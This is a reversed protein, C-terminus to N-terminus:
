EQRAVIRIFRQTSGTVPVDDRWLETVTGDDNETSGVSVGGASWAGVEDATQVEVAIGGLENRRTFTIALFREEAGNADDSVTGVEPLVGTDPELPDGGLVFELLNPVGDADPDALPGSIAEDDVNEFHTMRWEQFPDTEAGAAEINDYHLEMAVSDGRWAPDEASLLRMENVGALTDEATGTGAQRVLDEPAIGISHRSWGSGPSLEVADATAFQGGPGNLAVRIWASENGAVHRVDFRITVVGESLFDGTWQSRNFMIMMSGATGQGSSSVALAHDGDGEPGANFAVRPAHPNSIGHRWNMTTENQFDDIQGLEIARADLPGLVVIVIAPLARFLLAGVSLWRMASICM